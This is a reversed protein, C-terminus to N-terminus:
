LKFFQRETVKSVYFILLFKFVVLWQYSANIRRQSTLGKLSTIKNVGHLAFGIESPTQLELM